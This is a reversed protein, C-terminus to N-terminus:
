QLLHRFEEFSRRTPIFILPCSCEIKECFPCWFSGLEESGYRGWIIQSLRIAREAAFLGNERLLDLKEVLALLWSFADALQSELRRQRRYPEGTVFNEEKYTYMRVIADSVEGLEEMFHLAIDKLSLLELNNKFIQAFMRQWEDINAPKSKLKQESFLRLASMCQAKSEPDVALSAGSQCDCVDFGWYDTERARDNNGKRIYCFPCLGPYKHWLLDSCASVIRIITEPPGKEPPKADGFEGYLKHVLTFLWLACDAIETFLESPPSKKRIKEAIAAAHHQLHCLVDWISRDLDPRSYIKSVVDVYEDLQMLGVSARGYGM